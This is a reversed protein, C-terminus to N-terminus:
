LEDDYGHQDRAPASLPNLRPEDRDVKRLNPARPALVHVSGARPKASPSNGLPPEMGDEDLTMHDGAEAPIHTEVVLDQKGGILLLHETMDRRILVLRREDDIELHEVVRLRAGEPEGNRRRLVRMLYLFGLVAALTIAGGIVLWVLFSYAM